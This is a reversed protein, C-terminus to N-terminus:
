TGRHTVVKFEMDDDDDDVGDDDDDCTQSDLIVTVPQPATMKNLQGIYLLIETSLSVQFHGHRDM